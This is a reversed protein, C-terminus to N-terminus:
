RFYNKAIPLKRIRKGTLAYIAGTVAPAIPPTGPEGAGGMKEGSNVIAVEIEPAENIRLIQYDHFNSQDVKGDTFTIEGYLAATLGYNIASQMQAKVGEPHVAFGCDIACWVRHVRVNGGDVSVEAVEAVISGFSEQIAVGRARGAPPASGWGSLEAVADLVNLQRPHNALLARRLELPDKGGLAALEDIASNVTFGTHSHGVSRWWLVPVPAQADHAEVLLNPIEFMMDAAGETSSQDFKQGKPIFGDTWGGRLVGQSVITQQWAVPMGDADVGGRVRSMVFPRYSLGRVDDERTWTVLVPRGIAKSAQAADVAVDSNRQARRGFGGGLFQAHLTVQSPELGLVKAVADRDPGQMQTGLYLDCGDARVDALCNLPEMPSHALYPLEYEVDFTKAAKRLAAPADGRKGAVAGPTSCLKRYDRRQVNTSFHRNTEDDWDVVLAERARKAAFTTTGYVAIGGPIERIDVVGPLARAAKDDFKRLTAGVVAPRAIVAFVMGPLRTDIGFRVSGDVKMPTDLRKQPKGLYKFQAPDKLTVTEPVPLKAAADALEGYSLSKPGRFVRGDDTRLDAVDVRWHQAAAALLMARAKAGADRLQPYTTSTSMSGGTFQIPLGPVNFAPDAGALEVQVRGPSVDLEEAVVMALGTYVGQGMEAKGVIVTITDDPAVRLFANPALTAGGAAPMKGFRSDAFRIGLYLGAGLVGGAILFSRRDVRASASDTM